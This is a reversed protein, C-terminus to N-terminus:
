LLGKREVQESLVDKLADISVPKTIHDDMGCQRSKQQHEAMAHASLAFITARHTRGAEWLRIQQTADYGDLVPMECDMLVVDYPPEAEKFREVAQLGDSVVDPKINLRKLMGVIVLQNVNNDEAVLVRLGSLDAGSHSEEFWANDEGQGSLARALSKRLHGAPIPKEIAITIGSGALDAKQPLNRAATILLHPFRALGPLALLRRSLEIGDVDPMDLDLLAVDIHQGQQQLQTVRQVANEGSVASFVLMGWSEALSTTVTLFDPNDDVVLLTHGKLENLITDIHPVSQDSAVRLRVSFWFTSGKGPESIVGIDGGMAEALQKCIALGLGTGGYQRTTSSDAQAFSQFLKQQQDMTIGIGSDIIEFRVVIDSEEQSLLHANFKVGGQETFKFANGLLNIIIQRLRTPDGIVMRPVVPDLLALLPVKQDSSRLAFVSVCEDMVDELNFEVAELELKGAEIKSYDLIDNIIGLLAQGSNHITRVYHIQNTKLPTEKLLEAMGLVGNMPTRIEHSMKALFESKARTEAQSQQALLQAQRASAKLVNIRNALALSLVIMNGAVGIKHIYPTLEHWHLLGLSNLVGVFIPSLLVLWALLYLRAPQYGQRVSQLSAVLITIIMVSVTTLILVVAIRHPWVLYLLAESLALAMLVLFAKDTRPMSRVTDLYVRTFQLSFWMTACISIWIAVSQWYIGLPFLRYNLGDFCSASYVNTLIVGLYFFYSIERTVILLFLNYLLLGFCIGYFIGLYIQQDHLTRYFADPTYLKLPISLSSSSEVRLFFDRATGPPVTVKFVFTRLRFERQTYPLADGLVHERYQGPGHVEYLQLADLLPYTVELFVRDESALQNDIRFAVWIASDRFGFELAGQSADFRSVWDPKVLQDIRYQRQEDELVAVKTALDQSMDSQNLTIVPLAREAAAVHCALLLVCLLGAIWGSKYRLGSM